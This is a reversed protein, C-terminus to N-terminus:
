RRRSTPRARAPLRTSSPRRGTLLHSAQAPGAPRRSTATATRSRNGYVGTLSTLIDTATHSILPTHHNSLLTGNNTIFNLLNPM